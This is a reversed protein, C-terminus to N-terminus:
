KRSSYDSQEGVWYITRVQLGDRVIVYGEEKAEEPWGKPHSSFHFLEGGERLTELFSEWERTWEPAWPCWWDHKKRRASWDSGIEEVTTKERMWDPPIIQM